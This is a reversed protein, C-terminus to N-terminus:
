RVTGSRPILNRYHGWLAEPLLRGIALMVHDRLARDREAKGSEVAPLQVPPGFAATLVGEREFVGVPVMPVGGKSLWALAEGVGPRAERLEFSATGEPMIALPEGAALVRAAMRLGGVGGVSGSERASVLGFGYVGVFRAFIWRLLPRPVRWPGLWFDLLESVMLWRLDRGTRRQVAADLVMAGWGAWLGPREYHNGVLM